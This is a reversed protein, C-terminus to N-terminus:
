YNGVVPTATRHARHRTHTAAAQQQLLQLQTSQANYRTVLQDYAQLLTQMQTKLESLEAAPAYRPDAPETDPLELVSATATDLTLTQAHANAYGLLLLAFLLLFRFLTAPM